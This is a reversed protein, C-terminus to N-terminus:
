KPLIGTPPSNKDSARARWIAKMKALREPDRVFRDFLIEARPDRYNDASMACLEGREPSFRACAQAILSISAGDNLRSLGAVAVGVMVANSMGLAERLVPIARPDLGATLLTFNLPLSALKRWCAAFNMNREACWLGFAPSVGLRPDEKGSQDTRFVDAPPDSLITARAYGALEDFYIDDRVGRELLYVAVMQSLRMGLSDPEVLAQSIRAQAFVDKLAPIVDPDDTRRALTGIAAFNSPDKRLTEILSRTSDGGKVVTQGVAPLCLLLLLGDARM